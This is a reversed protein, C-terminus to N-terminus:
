EPGFYLKTVYFSAFFDYIAKFPCAENIWHTAFISCKAMMETMKHLLEPVLQLFDVSTQHFLLVFFDFIRLPCGLVVHANSSPPTLWNVMKICLVVYKTFDTKKLANKVFPTSWFIRVIWGEHWVVHWCAGFYQAPDHLNKSWGRKDLVSKFFCVKFTNMFAFHTLFGLFRGVHNISTGQNRFVNNDTPIGFLRGM